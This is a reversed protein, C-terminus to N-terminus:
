WDVWKGLRKDWYQGPRRGQRRHRVHMAVFGLIALLCGMVFVTNAIATDSMPSM